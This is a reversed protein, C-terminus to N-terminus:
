LNNYCKCCGPIEILSVNVTGGVFIVAPTYVNQQGCTCGKCDPAQRCDETPFFQRWSGFQIVTVTAGWDTVATSPDSSLPTSICCAHNVDMSGTAQRKVVNHFMGPNSSRHQPRQTVSSRGSYKWAMAERKRIGQFSTRNFCQFSCGRAPSKLDVPAKKVNNSLVSRTNSNEIQRQEEVSRFYSAYRDLIEKESPTITEEEKASNDEEIIKVYVLYVSLAICITMFLLALIMWIRNSSCDKGMKLKSTAIPGFDPTRTVESLSTNVAEAGQTY